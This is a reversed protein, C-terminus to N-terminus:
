IFIKNWYWDRKHNSDGEHQVRNLADMTFWESYLHDTVVDVLDLDWKSKLWPLYCITNIIWNKVVQKWNIRTELLTWQTAFWTLSHYFLCNQVLNYAYQPTNKHLIDQHRTSILYICLLDLSCYIHCDGLKFRVLLLVYFWDRFTQSWTATSLMAFLRLEFKSTIIDLSSGFFHMFLM